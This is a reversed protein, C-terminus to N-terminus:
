WTLRLGGMVSRSLTQYGLVEEYRENLANDLRLFPTVHKTVEFSGSAFINEYGPNRTAGFTFDSDQREGIFRGGVVFSWRKPTVSISLAGSNRPRRVLEQGIGTTPSTPAVSNTIRTYMRTYSTTVRINHALRTEVSSEVGRSWSAQINQWSDGVFAILNHFSSRFATVETRVRRGFWESVVGAEYTTTDEPTLAPNGHYYASKAFNELLSPETVGRGASFRLSVSSLASHEGALLFSAGGRGSGINGFASSHELRAGGSLYLRGWVTQQANFFFGNNNRSVDIGTLNGSQNQYDYGFVLVGGRHSLTGQYGGTKRETLNLSGGPGFYATGLAIRLGPPAQSPISSPNLLQVFYVSPVNGPVDRVYAALSQTGFPENNNYLDNLRNYGFSFRQLYNSGRSDDLRVSVTSDRTEENPYPDDISYAVQGPTGVHGDYIHFVGRVQTSNSIRYGINATGTNDRYFDNQYAGVTHLEAASLSYDLRGALGGTVNAIWRDTQFNGREYSVSGHPVKDEPDGRKTFIQIVSAAAEAGFLASEPGRVVEIREVGETTLHELHLEGGPDNLPVGDLLVLTGTREAGRTYVQTM